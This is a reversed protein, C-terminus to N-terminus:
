LGGRWAEVKNEEKSYHFRCYWTGKGLKEDTRGDHKRRRKKRTPAKKKTAGASLLTAASKRKTGFSGYIVDQRHIFFSDVWHHTVGVKHVRVVLPLPNRLGYKKVLTTRALSIQLMAKNRPCDGGKLRGLPTRLRAGAYSPQVFTGEYGTKFEILVVQGRSNACVMDIATAYPIDEDYIPWEGALPELRWVSLARIAKITYMNPRPYKRIWDADSMNAYDSLEQHVLTGLTKGRKRTDRLLLRVNDDWTSGIGVPPTGRPPRKQAVPRNKPKGMQQATPPYFQRAMLATLGRITKVKGSAHKFIFCEGTTYFAVNRNRRHTVFKSADQTYKPAKYRPPLISAVSPVISAHASGPTYDPEVRNRM